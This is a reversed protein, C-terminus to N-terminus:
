LGEGSEVSFDAGVYMGVNMVGEVGKLTRVYTLVDDYTGTMELELYMRSQEMRTFGHKKILREQAEETVAYAVLRAQVDKTDEVTDM